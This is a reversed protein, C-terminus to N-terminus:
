LFLFPSGGGQKFIFVESRRTFLEPNLKNRKSSSLNVKIGSPEKGQYWITGKITFKIIPHIMANYLYSNSSSPNNPNEFPPIECDSLGEPTM